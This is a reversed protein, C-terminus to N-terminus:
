VGRGRRWWGKEQEGRGCIGEVWSDPEHIAVERGNALNGAFTAASAGTAMISVMTAKARGPLLMTTSTQFFVTTDKDGSLSL